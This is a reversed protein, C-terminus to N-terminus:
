SQPHKSVTKVHRRIEEGYGHFSFRLRFAPPLASIHALICAHMCRKQNHQLQQSCPLQKVNIQADPQLGSIFVLFLCCVHLVCPQRDRQLLFLWSALTVTCKPFQSLSYAKVKESLALCRVWAATKSSAPLRIQLDTSAMNWAQIM